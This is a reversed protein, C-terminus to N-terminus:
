KKIWMYMGAEVVYKKDKFGFKEYFKKKGDAALLQIMFKESEQLSSKVINILAEIMKTGIGKSRYEPKVIVDALLSIYGHDTILRAMGVTENNIVYKVNISNKLGEKVLRESPMAWGTTSMIEVYEEYSLNNEVIM